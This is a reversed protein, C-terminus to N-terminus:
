ALLREVVQSWSPVLDSVLKHGAEGMARSRERDAALRDLAAAIAKPRPEVVFGNEGDRVLELPGESDALTVVPKRASFGELTVYGYDEDYPGYYAGLSGLYLELLREDTVGSELRVRDELGAEDIQRELGARGPGAGVLVLRVGTRVHRMAEVALSQRKLPELRSPFVVYDGLPGPERHLLAECILSRHYLPDSGIGLSRRLRGGVNASNTYIRKAEKLGVRDAKWILERVEPGDEHMALDGYIPHDWLEYASRHQHILWVVKREHRVLYAPFKLAIVMDITQGNAESVDLSRWLAMQHVLESPPYWKFPIALIDVDHGMDRLTSALRETHMEGGGRAFPTQPHCIAIRM